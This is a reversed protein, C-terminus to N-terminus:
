GAGGEIDLRLMGVPMGFITNGMVIYLHRNANELVKTLWGLHEDWQVPKTSFSGARTVPDNTWDFLIQADDITAPRLICPMSDSENNKLQMKSMEKIGQFYM